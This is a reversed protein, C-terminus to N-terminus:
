GPPRAALRAVVTKLGAVVEQPVFRIQTEAFRLTTLGAATHAQDRRHDTAQEGPTRHHRWSDAEVVLKLDPWYFDVRYGNVRAQTEPRPLGATRVLALFKRELGSDTLADCGLLRRLCATGPRPPLTAAMAPLTELDVLDFRDAENIAREVRWEPVCSALDVLTSVVDTVPIGDVQRRHEPGLGSRQHVRIGPRRRYAIRPVVVDIHRSKAILGWLVAASRHSLLATPGCSLVAAMWYGHRGVERRGVAYVGRWLPHLRGSSIRHKVAAPGYGFGGLQSRTVVGHQRRVLNWLGAPDQALKKDGM